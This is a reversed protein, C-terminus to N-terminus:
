HITFFLSFFKLGLSLPLFFIRHILLVGIKMFSSINIIDGGLKNILGVVLVINRYTCFSHYLDSFRIVTNFKASASEIELFFNRLFDPALSLFPTGGYSLASPVILFVTMVAGMFLCVVGINMFLQHLPGQLGAGELLRNRMEINAAAADDDDLDDEHDDEDSDDSTDSDMADDDSEFDDMRDNMMDNAGGNPQRINNINIHQNDGEQHARQRNRVRRNALRM